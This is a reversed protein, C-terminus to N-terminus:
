PAVVPGAWPDVSSLAAVKPVPLTRGARPMFAIDDRSKADRRDNATVLGELLVPSPSPPDSCREDKITGGDNDEESLDSRARALIDMAASRWARM